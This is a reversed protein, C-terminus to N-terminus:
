KPITQDIFPKAENIPIAFAIGEVFNDAIKSNTIGIIESKYNVLAGGSNGKNIAADTQILDRISSEPYINRDLASVIGETVSAKFKMGLPNGIAVVPEGVELNSSNGLKAVPLKDKNIKIIALDKEKNGRIFEANTQEGNLLKVSLTDKDSESPDSSEVVHYNTIIYGNKRIIIGSGAIYENYNNNPIKKESRIAVITPRVNKAVLTIHKVASVDTNKNKNDHTKEVCGGSSGLLFVMTLLALLFKKSKNKHKSSDNNLYINVKEM